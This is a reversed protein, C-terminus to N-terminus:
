VVGLVLQFSVFGEGAKNSCYTAAIHIETGDELIVQFNTAEQRVKGATGTSTNVRLGMRNMETVTRGALFDSMQDIRDEARDVSEPHMLTLATQTDGDALAQLMQEVKETSEAGAM